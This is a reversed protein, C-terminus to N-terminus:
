RKTTSNNELRSANAEGALRFKVNGDRRRASEAGVICALRPPRDVPPQLGLVDGVRIGLDAMANVADRHVSRTRIHQKPLLM